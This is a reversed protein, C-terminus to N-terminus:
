ERWKYQSLSKKTLAKEPSKVELNQNTKVISASNAIKLKVGEPKSKTM